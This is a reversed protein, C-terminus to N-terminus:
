RVHERFVYGTPMVQNLEKRHRNSDVLKKFSKILTTSTYFPLIFPFVGHILGVIGALILISSNKIAFWAHSFYTQPNNGDNHLHDASKVLIYDIINTNKINMGSM